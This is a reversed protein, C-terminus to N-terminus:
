SHKPPPAGIECLEAELDIIRVLLTEDPTDQMPPPIVLSLHVIIAGLDLPKFIDWRHFRLKEGDEEAMYSAQLISGGDSRTRRGEPKCGEPASSTEAAARRLDGVDAEHGPKVTWANYDIWLTGSDEGDCYCGWMGNEADRGDNWRKPALLDIFGYASIARLEHFDFRCGSRAAEPTRRWEAARAWLEDSDLDQVSLANVQDGFIQVLEQNAPRDVAEIPMALTFRLHGLLDDTRQFCYWRFTRIWGSEEEHDVIARLVACDDRREVEVGEVPGPYYALFKEVDGLHEEIRGAKPLSQTQVFLTVEGDERGCWHRGDSEKGFAWDKPIQVITYSDLRV